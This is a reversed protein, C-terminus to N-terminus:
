ATPHIPNGYGGDNRATVTSHCPHCLGRGWHPDNPNKGQRVLEARTHPHHDAHQSPLLGCLVCRPDRALVARRFLREHNGDYGRARANPRAADTRQQAAKRKAKAHGSPCDGAKRDHLEPCGPEPCPTYRPPM